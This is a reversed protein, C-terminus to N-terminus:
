AHPVSGPLIFPSVQRLVPMQMATTQALRAEVAATLDAASRMNRGGLRVRGSALGSAVSTETYQSLFESVDLSSFNAEGDLNMAYGWTLTAKATLRGRSAQASADTLRLEGRMGSAFNWGLPFRADSVRIGFLWGRPLLVQGTGSWGR